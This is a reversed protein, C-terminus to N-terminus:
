WGWGGGGLSEQLCHVALFPLHPLEGGEPVAEQDVTGRPTLVGEGQLHGVEVVETGGRLLLHALAQRDALGPQPLLLPFRDPSTLGQPLPARRQLPLQPRQVPREAVALRLVMHGQQLLM